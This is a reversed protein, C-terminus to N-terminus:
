LTLHQSSPSLDPNKFLSYWFAQSSLSINTLNSLKCSNPLGTFMKPFIIQYTFEAKLCLNCINNTSTGKHVFGQSTSKEESM